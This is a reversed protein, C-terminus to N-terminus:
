IEIYVRMKLNVKFRKTDATPNTGLKIGFFGKPKYLIKKLRGKVKTSIGKEM